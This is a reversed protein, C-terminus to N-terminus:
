ITILSSIGLVISKKSSKLNTAARNQNKNNLYLDPYNEPGKNLSFFQYLSNKNKNKYKM